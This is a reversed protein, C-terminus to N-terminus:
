RYLVIGVLFGVAMLLIPNLKKVRVLVFAVIAIIISKYDIIAGKGITVVAALVLALVVPRIGRISVKIANSDRFKNITLFIISMIIFSPLTVGLTAVVSGWFGALKNGIFTASNVAFPGPTTQAIAVIDIFDSYSIWQLGNIIEKEFLPMMAYGGGFSFLGIKFFVLFIEVLLNMYEGLNNYCLSFYKELGAIYIKLLINMSKTIYNM